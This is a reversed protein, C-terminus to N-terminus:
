HAQADCREEIQEDRTAEGGESFKAGLPLAKHMLACVAAKARTVIAIRRGSKAAVVMHQEDDADDHRQHRDDDDGPHPHWTADVGGIEAPYALLPESFMARRVRQLPGTPSEDLIGLLYSIASTNWRLSGIGSHAMAHKVTARVAGGVAVSNSIGGVVTNAMAATPIAASTKKLGPDIRHNGVDRASTLTRGDPCRSRALAAIVIATPAPTRVSSSGFRLVASSASSRSRMSSSPPQCIARYCAYRTRGAPDDM